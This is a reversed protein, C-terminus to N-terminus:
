RWGSCMVSTAFALGVNEWRRAHVGQTSIGVVEARLWAMGLLLRWQTHGWRREETKGRKMRCHCGGCVTSSTKMAGCVSM